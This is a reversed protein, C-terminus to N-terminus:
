MVFGRAKLREMRNLIQTRVGAAKAEAKKDLIAGIMRPVWRRSMKYTVGREMKEDDLYKGGCVRLAVLLKLELPVPGDKTRSATIM